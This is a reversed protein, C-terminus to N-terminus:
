SIMYELAEKALYEVYAEWCAVLLVITSKHLVQVDHKYGPGKTTIQGHIQSLRDVENVNDILANMHKNIAEIAL